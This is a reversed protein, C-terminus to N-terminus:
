RGGINYMELWWTSICACVCVMEGGDSWRDVEVEYKEGVENDERWQAVVEEWSNGRRKMGRVGARQEVRGRKGERGGRRRGCERSTVERKHMEGTVDRGGSRGGCGGCGETAKENSGKWTTPTITPADQGEGLRTWGVWRWELASDKTESVRELKRESVWKQCLIEEKM